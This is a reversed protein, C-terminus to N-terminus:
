DDGLNSVRPDVAIPAAQPHLDAMVTRGDAFDMHEPGNWRGAYWTHLLGHTRANTSFVDLRGPAWSTVAM